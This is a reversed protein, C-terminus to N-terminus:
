QSYSENQVEMRGSIDVNCKLIIRKLGMDYFPASIKAKELVFGASVLGTLLQSDLVNYLESPLSDAKGLIRINLTYNERFCKKTFGFDSNDIIIESIGAVVYINEHKSVPIKEYESYVPISIGELASYISEVAANLTAM